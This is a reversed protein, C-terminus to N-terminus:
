LFFIKEEQNIHQKLGPNNIRYYDLCDIEYLLGVDEMHVMIDLLEGHKLDPAFVALDIDSGAKYNGMARSGFIKVKEIQNYRKFVGELLNIIEDSLGFKTM